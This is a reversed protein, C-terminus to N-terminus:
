ISYLCRTFSAMEFEAWFSSQAITRPTGILGEHVFKGCGIRTFDAAEPTSFDVHSDGYDILSLHSEGFCELNALASKEKAGGFFVGDTRPDLDAKENGSVFENRDAGVHDVQDVVISFASFDADFEVVGFGRELQRDPM